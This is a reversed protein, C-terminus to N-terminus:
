VLFHLTPSSAGNKMMWLGIMCGLGVIASFALYPPYWAGIQKALDSFIFPVAALAGIFGIVCIATIIGPRKPTMIEVEKGNL